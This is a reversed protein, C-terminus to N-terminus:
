RLIPQPTAPRSRVGDRVQDILSHVGGAADTAIDAAPDKRSLFRQLGVFSSVGTLLPSTHSVPPLQKPVLLSPLLFFGVGVVFFWCVLCIFFGM